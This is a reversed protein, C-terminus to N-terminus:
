TGLAGERAAQERAVVQPAQALMGPQAQHSVLPRYPAQRYVPVAGAGATCAADELPVLVGPM